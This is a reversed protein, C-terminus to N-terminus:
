IVDMKWLAIWPVEIFLCDISSNLRSKNRHPPEVQMDCSRPIYYGQPLLRSKCRRPLTNTQLDLSRPEIGLQPLYFIEARRCHREDYIVWGIATRHMFIDRPKM